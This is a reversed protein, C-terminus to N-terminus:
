EGNKNNNKYKELFNIVKVTDSFGIKDKIAARHHDITKKSLTLEEAIASSTMGKAILELVECERETLLIV